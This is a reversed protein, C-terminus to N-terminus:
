GIWDVVSVGDKWDAKRWRIDVEILEFDTNVGAESSRIVRTQSM